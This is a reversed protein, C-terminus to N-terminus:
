DTGVQIKHRFGEIVVEEAGQYRAVLNSLKAFIWPCMISKGTKSYAIGDAIYVCAQIPRGSKSNKLLIMDGFRFPPDVRDCNSQIYKEFHKAPAPWVKSTYEFFNLAASFSDPFTGDMGSSLTPFTYLFKRPTPPLLHSVDIKELGGTGLISQLMPLTDRYRGGATWYDKLVDPDSNGSLRLRLIITRTRTLSGLIARQEKDSTLDQLLLPVDSFALSKGIPYTLKEIKSITEESLGSNSFWEKVSGTEIIAPTRYFPNENWRRLVAYITSRSLPSLHFVFEPDPFVRVENEPDSPSPHKLLRNQDDQSIGAKEFLSKVKERTM